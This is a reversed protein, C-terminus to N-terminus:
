FKNKSFIVKGLRGFFSKIFFCLNNIQSERRLQLFNLDSDTCHLIIFVQLFIHVKHNMSSCFLVAVNLYHLVVVHLFEKALTSVVHFVEIRLFCLTCNSSQFYSVSISDCIIDDQIKCM